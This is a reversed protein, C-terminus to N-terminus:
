AAVPQATAANLFKVPQALIRKRYAPKVDLFTQGEV